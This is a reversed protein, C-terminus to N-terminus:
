HEHGRELQRDPPQDEDLRVKTAKQSLVADMTSLTESILTRRPVAPPYNRRDSSIQMTIRM